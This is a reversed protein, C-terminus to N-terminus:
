QHYESNATCPNRIGPVKRSIVGVIEMYVLGIVRGGIHFLMLVVLRNGRSDSGTTEVDEGKWLRCAAEETGCSNVVDM